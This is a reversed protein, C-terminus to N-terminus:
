VIFNRDELRGFAYDTYAGGFMARTKETWALAEASSIRRHVQLV